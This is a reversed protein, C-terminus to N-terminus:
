LILHETPILKETRTVVTKPAPAEICLVGDASLSSTVKIPDVGEPLLYDKTFERSVTGGATSEVHKAHVTLNRDVTKVTIDEPKFQSCDFKLNLKKNGSFDEVFPSDINLMNKGFQAADFPDKKHEWPSLELMGSRAKHVEKEFEEFSKDFESQFKPFLSKQKDFFGSEFYSVPVIRSM